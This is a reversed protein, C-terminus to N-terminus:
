PQHTWIKAKSKMRLCLSQTRPDKTTMQQISPHKPIPSREEHSNHHTGDTSILSGKDSKCLSQLGTMSPQILTRSEHKQTKGKKASFM